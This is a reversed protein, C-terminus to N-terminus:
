RKDPRPIIAGFIAGSLGSVIAIFIDYLINNM